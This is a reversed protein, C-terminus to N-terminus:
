DLVARQEDAGHRLPILPRLRPVPSEAAAEGNKAPSQRRRPPVGGGGAALCAGALAAAGRHLFERRTRTM